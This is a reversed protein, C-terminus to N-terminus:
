TISNIFTCSFYKAVKWSMVVIVGFYFCATAKNHQCSILKCCVLLFNIQAQHNVHNSALSSGSSTSVPSGSAIQIHHRAVVVQLLVHDSKSPLAEQNEQERMKIATGLLIGM